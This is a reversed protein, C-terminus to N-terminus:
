KGGSSTTRYANLKHERLLRLSDRVQEPREGFKSLEEPTATDVRMAIGPLQALYDKRQPQIRWVIISTLLLGTFIIIFGSLIIGKFVPKPKVPRTLAFIFIWSLAALSFTSIYTYRSAMGYDIGLGFRRFMMFGLYFLTLMILFFPLYTKDHMKSKFFLILAFIYLLIVVLGLIAIHHFSFYTCAFFADVGVVSAGFAALLFQVADWPKAFIEKAFFVPDSGYAYDDHYIDFAYLFAIAALFLSIMLARLWFDKTLSSRRTLVYCLFTAGLAPGFVIYLKGSFVLVALTTFLFAAFAYNRGGNSLFLELCFFSAIFFPMSSQYALAYGFLLGEWQIVNFIILALVFFTAAIFEPSREPLLSKRYERYILLASAMIFFPIMLTFIRCSMSFWKINALLLLNYGLFRQGDSPRWLDAFTLTGGFYNEVPGGKFLYLDDRFVLDTATTWVYLFLLAFPILLSLSFIFKARVSTKEGSTSIFKHIM